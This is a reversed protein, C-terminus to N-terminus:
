LLRGKLLFEMLLFAFMFDCINAGQVFRCFCNIWGKLGKLGTSRYLYKHLCHLDLHSPEYHTTEDPDESNAVTKIKKRLGRNPVTKRVLNPSPPIWKLFEPIFLNNVVIKRLIRMKIPLFTWPKSLIKMNNNRCTLTIFIITIKCFFFFFFFFFFFCMLYFPDPLLHNSTNCTNCLKLYFSINRTNVRITFYNAREASTFEEM